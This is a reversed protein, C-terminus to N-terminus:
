GQGIDFSGFVIGTTGLPQWALALCADDYIRPMRVEFAGFTEGSGGVVSNFEAVRRLLTIGFNGAVAGAGGWTVSQVSRVGSDGAQLNMTFMRGAVVSSAAFAASTGTRGSTGAQNTYSMSLTTAAPTFATYTEIWAEVSDGNADPRTLSGPTTVTQASASNGVM